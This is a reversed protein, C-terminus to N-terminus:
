LHAEYFDLLAHTHERLVEAHSIVRTSTSDQILYLYDLGGRCM